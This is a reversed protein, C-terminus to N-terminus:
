KKCNCLSIFPLYPLQKRRRYTNKEAIIRNGSNRWNFSGTVNQWENNYVGYGTINLCPDFSDDFALYTNQNPYVHQAIEYLVTDGENVKLAQTDLNDGGQATSHRGGLTNQGNVVKYVYKNPAPDEYYGLTNATTAVYALYCASRNVVYNANCEFWSSFGTTFDIQVWNNRDRDLSNYGSAKIGTFTGDSAYMRVWGEKHQPSVLNDSLPNGNALLRDGYSDAYLAPYEALVAEVPDIM